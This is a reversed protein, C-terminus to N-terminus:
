RTGSGQLWVLPDETVARLAPPDSVMTIVADTRHAADAPSEAPMAGLDTLQAMNDPTRDWILVEHGADLLRRAMRGGMAGIGVVAVATMAGDHGM